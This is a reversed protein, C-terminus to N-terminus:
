IAYLKSGPSQGSRSSDLLAIAPLERMSAIQPEPLEAPLGISRESASRNEYHMTLPLEAMITMMVGSGSGIICRHASVNHVAEIDAVWDDPHLVYRYKTGKDTLDNM